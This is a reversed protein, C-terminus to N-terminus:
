PKPNKVTRFTFKSRLRSLYIVQCRFFYEVFRRYFLISRSDPLCALESSLESIESLCVM